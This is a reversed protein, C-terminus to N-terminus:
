FLRETTATCLLWCPSSERVRHKLNPLVEKCPVCFIKGASIKLGQDPFERLRQEVGVGTEPTQRIGGKASGRDGVPPPKKKRQREREMGALEPHAGQFIQDGSRM